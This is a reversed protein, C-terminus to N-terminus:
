LKSPNCDHGNIKTIHPKDSAGLRSTGEITIELLGSSADLPTFNQHTDWGAANHPRSEIKIRVIGDELYEGNLPLENNDTYNDHDAYRHDWTVDTRGPLKYYNGNGDKELRFTNFKFTLRVNGQDGLTWAKMLVKTMVSTPCRKYESDVINGDFTPTITAGLSSGSILEITYSLPLGQNAAGFKSTKELVQRIRDDSMAKLSDETTGSDNLIQTTAGADGLSIIQVNTAESKNVIDQKSTMKQEFGDFSQDGEYHISKTSYEKLFHISRGYTVSTIIALPRGNSQQKIQEWTVNDGFLKSVDDRYNDNLRVTYFSQELSTDHIFSSENNNITANVKLNCGCFSSDVGMNVMMDNKSSYIKSTYNATGAPQYQTGFLERLMESITDQVNGATSADVTKLTNKGSCFTGFIQTQSRAVNALPIPSGESLNKDAIVIAGPYINHFGGGRVYITQKSIPKNVNRLQYCEGGSVVFSEDPAKAENYLTDNLLVTKPDVSTNRLGDRIARRRAEEREKKEREEREKREKEEKEKREKEEREKREREEQEKKKQEEKVKDYSVAGGPNSNRVTLVMSYDLYDDNSKPIEEDKNYFQITMDSFYASTMEFTAFQDSWYNPAKITFELLAIPLVSKSKKLQWSPKGIGLSSINWYDFDFRDNNKIINNNTRVAEDDFFRSSILVDGPKDDPEDNFTMNLPTIWEEKNFICSLHETTKQHNSDFFSFSLMFCMTSERPHKYLMMKVKKEEGPALSIENIPNCAEDGFVLLPTMSGAPQTPIISSPEQAIEGGNDQPPTPTAGSNDQPPTVNDAKANNVTLKMSYNCKVTTGNAAPTGTETTMVFKTVNNDLEVTAYKDTWDSSAMLVFEAVPVPPIYMDRPYWFQGNPNKGMCRWVGNSVRASNLDNGSMGGVSEDTTSLCLPNLWKKSDADLVCTIGNTLQHNSDYVSWQALFNQTIAEPHDSLVVTIKKQEGPALSIENIQNGADDNFVLIPANQQPPTANANNMEDSM